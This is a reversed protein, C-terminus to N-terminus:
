CSVALIGMYLLTGTFISLLLKRFILHVVVIYIFAIIEPLGYPSKTFTTDKFCYVVLFSFLAAPLVRGLYKIIEPTKKNKSFLFLPVVRDIFTAIIAVLITIFMQIKTM